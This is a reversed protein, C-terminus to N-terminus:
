KYRVGREQSHRLRSGGRKTPLAQECERIMKQPKEGGFEQSVNEELGRYRAQKEMRGKPDQGGDQLLKEQRRWLDATSKGWNDDQRVYQRGFTKEFVIVTPSDKTGTGQSFAQKRKGYATHRKLLRKYAGIM